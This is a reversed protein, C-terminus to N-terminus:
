PLPTSFQLGGCLHLLFRMIIDIIEIVTAALLFQRVISVLEDM